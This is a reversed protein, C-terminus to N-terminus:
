LLQLRMLWIVTRANTQIKLGQYYGLYDLFSITFVISSDILSLRLVQWDGSKLMAPNM